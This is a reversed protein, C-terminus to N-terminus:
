LGWKKMFIQIINKSYKELEYEWTHTFTQGEIQLKQALETVTSVFM